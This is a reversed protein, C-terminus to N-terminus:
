LITNLFITVRILLSFPYLFCLPSESSKPIKHTHTNQKKFYIYLSSISSASCVGTCYTATQVMLPTTAFQWQALSATM